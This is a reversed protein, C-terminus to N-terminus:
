SEKTTSPNRIVYIIPSQMVIILLFKRKKFKGCNQVMLMELKLFYQRFKYANRYYKCKTEYTSLSESCIFKISSITMNRRNKRFLIYCNKQGYFRMIVYRKPLRIIRGLFFHFYFIFFWFLFFYFFKLNKSLFKKANSNKRFSSVLFIKM